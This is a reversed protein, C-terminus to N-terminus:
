RIAVPSLHYFNIDKVLGTHERQLSRGYILSGRGDIGDLGCSQEQTVTLVHDKYNKYSVDLLCRVNM